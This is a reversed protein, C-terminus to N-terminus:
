WYYWLQTLSSFILPVAIETTAITFLRQDVTIMNAWSGNIKWTGQGRTRSNIWSNDLSTIPIVLFGRKMTLTPTQTCESMGILTKKMEWEFLSYFWIDIKVCNSMFGWWSACMWFKRVMKRYWKYIVKWHIHYSPIWIALRIIAMRDRHTPRTTSMKIRALFDPLYRLWHDTLLM